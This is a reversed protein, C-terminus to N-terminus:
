AESGAGYLIKGAVSHGSSTEQGLACDGRLSVYVTGVVASVPFWVSWPWRRLFSDMQLDGGEGKQM